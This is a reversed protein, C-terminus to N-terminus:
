NTLQILKRCFCYFCPLICEHIDCLCVFWDKICINAEICDFLMLQNWFAWRLSNNVSLTIQKIPGLRSSKLSTFKSRLLFPRTIKHLYKQFLITQNPCTLYKKITIKSKWKFILRLIYCNKRIKHIIWLVLYLLSDLTLILLLFCSSHLKM